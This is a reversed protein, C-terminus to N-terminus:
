VGAADNVIGDVGKSAGQESGVGVNGGICGQEGRSLGLCATKGGGARKSQASSAADNGVAGLVCGRSREARCVPWKCGNPVRRRRVRHRRAGGCDKKDRFKKLKAGGDRTEGCGKIM